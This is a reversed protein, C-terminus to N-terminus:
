LETRKKIAFVTAVAFGMLIVVPIVGSEDGTKVGPKGPKNTKAPKQPQESAKYRNTFTATKFKEGDANTITREVNLKGEKVTVVDKITYVTKDYTYEKNKQPIESIVYEYTGAKTYYFDGFEVKGAGIKTIIKEGNKSGEPMPNEKNKAVMKFQFKQKADPKGGIINKEVPPDVLIPTFKKIKNNIEVSFQKNSDSEEKPIEKIKGITTDYNESNDEVVYVFDEFEKGNIREPINKIVAKYNNKENLEVTDLLYDNKHTWESEPIGKLYDLNAYVKVVVDEKNMGKDWSKEINLDVKPGETGITVSGNSGIGGGRTASTNGTIFTKAEICQGEEYRNDTHLLLKTGSPITEPLSYVDVKQGNENKWKYPLGGLMRDALKLEAEGAHPGGGAFNADSLLFFDSKVGEANNGYIAAGNNVYIKTRSIPCVALGAGVMSAKNDAIIANKLHLEGYHLGKLGGYGDKIGNVYIGGGGFANNGKGKGTMSNNTINGANISAKTKGDNWSTLIMIGGGGSGSSNNSITGGNMNLITNGEELGSKGLCIGGGYEYASNYSITAKESMNIESNEALIGGGQGYYYTGYDRTSFKAADGKNYSITGGTFNMISNNELYIGAGNVAQNKQIAGGSMNITGGYSHIAGGYTENGFGDVDYPDSKNESNRIINNQLIAGDKINLTGNLYILSKEFVPGKNGNGDITINSLTAETNKEVKFLNDKFGEGRIVKAKTGNLTIEGSIATTGVVVINTINTHEKALKKAQEFTKVAKEKTLGDNEDKGNKGDLYISTASEYNPTAVVPEEATIAATRTENPIKEVDKVEVEEQPEKVEGEKQTETNPSIEESQEKGTDPDVKEEAAIESKDEGAAFAPLLGCVGTGIVLVLVLLLSLKKRTRKM